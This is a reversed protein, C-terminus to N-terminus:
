HIKEQAADCMSYPLTFSVKGIKHGEPLLIYVEDTLVFIDDPANLQERMTQFISPMYPQIIIALLAVINSCLGIVTGARSRFICFSENCICDCMQRVCANWGGLIYWGNLESKTM